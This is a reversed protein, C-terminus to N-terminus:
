TGSHIITALDTGLHQMWITAHTSHLMFRLAQVLGDETIITADIYNSVSKFPICVKAAWRVSERADKIGM